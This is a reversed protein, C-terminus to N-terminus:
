MSGYYWGLLIYLVAGVCLVVIMCWIAWVNCCAFLCLNLLGWILILSSVMGKAAQISSHGINRHIQPNPIGPCYKM